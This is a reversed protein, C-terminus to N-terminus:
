NINVLARHQDKCEKSFVQIMDSTSYELVCLNALKHLHSLTYLNKNINVCNQNFNDVLTRYCPMMELNLPQHTNELVNKDDVVSRSAQTLIKSFLNDIEKRGNILHLRKKELREKDEKNVAADVQRNLMELLVDRKSISVTSHVTPTDEALDGSGKAGGLFDTVHDVGLSLEGYECPRSEKMRNSVKQFQKKLTETRLGKKIHDEHDIDEMWAAGYEGALCTDMGPVDCYTNYALHTADASTTAFININKPLIKSFMSGSECTDLYFVLKKYMKKKHMTKLAKILQDAYLVSEPFAILGSSGHDSFYVLVHDNPGSELVKGSGKGEMAKKNGTLINIFNEPTVEEKTYDKIVGPYLNPGNPQNIIVGQRPNNPNYAIDDYMMVIINSNPIGHRHFIQYAHCIDAQMAYNYYEKAGAVLVAWIKGEGGSTDLPIALCLPVLFIVLVSRFMVQLPYSM